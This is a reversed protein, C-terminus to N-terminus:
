LTGLYSVLADVDSPTLKGTQGHAKGGCPAIFRDQLTAACGDHMWPGHLSVGRLSPVQFKGGTGVDVTTNNTLTAGNHCSTCGLTPDNFLDKGHQMVEVAAPAAVKPQPIAEMWDTLATVVAPTPPTGGMRAVFTDDLLAKLTPVSGSWHFPLTEMVGGALSQTRVAQGFLTWVHGDDAGEPHCSACAIAGTADHFLAHGASEITVGTLLIQKQTRKATTGMVWVASPDRTHVVLENQPTYAVGTVQGLPAVDPYSPTCIGGSM